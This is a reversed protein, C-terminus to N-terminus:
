AILSNLFKSLDQNTIDRARGRAPQIRKSAHSIAATEPEPEAIAPLGMAMRTRAAQVAEPGSNTQIGREERYKKIDEITLAM